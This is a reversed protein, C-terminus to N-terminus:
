IDNIAKEQMWEATYLEAYQYISDEAEPLDDVPLNVVNPVADEIAKAEAKTIVGIKTLRDARGEKVTKDFKAQRKAQLLRVEEDHETREIQAENYRELKGCTCLYIGNQYIYVEDINGEKDPLYYADVEYNRPALKSIVNVNNDLWYNAGQVRVYDNNRISTKAKEGIYRMVLHRSMPELKPNLNSMLVEWRTMNPYLNQKSHLGNNHDIIAQMDEAILQEPKYTKEEMEGDVKVRQTRKYEGKAHWRGIGAQSKKETTYKKQNIMHEAGKERSNTPLCLRVFPFMGQLDHMISSMLHHEVEVEAPMPLGHSDLLRYMNRFCEWVLNIDPKGVKYASGVWCESGLDVAIYSNVWGKTSKRPLTRDDMSIKSFSFHPRTRHNHPRMTNNYAYRGMRDLGTLMRNGPRMLYNKITSDSLTIPIGKKNYYDAPDLMEGTVMDFLEIKGMLFAEYQTKVSAEGTCFPATVQTFLSQLLNDIKVSVKRANDNGHRGSILAKYGDRKLDLLKGRLRRPHEPLTHGVARRAAEVEAAVADWVGRTSNQRGKRVTTMDQERLLAARLMSANITYELIKSAPDLSGAITSDESYFARAMADVTYYIMVGTARAKREFDPNRADIIARFRVPISDYRVLAYNGMGKGQRVVILMGRTVLKKYYEYSMIPENGSTLEPCSVCLIDCYYEM